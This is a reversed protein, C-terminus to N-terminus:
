STRAELGPVRNAREDLVGTQAVARLGLWIRTRGRKRTGVPQSAAQSNFLVPSCAARLTGRVYGSLAWDGAALISTDTPRFLGAGEIVGELRALRRDVDRLRGGIWTAATLILAALSAGVGLVGILEPSM